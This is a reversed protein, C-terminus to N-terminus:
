AAARGNAQPDIDCLTFADLGHKLLDYKGIAANVVDDDRGPDKDWGIFLAIDGIIFPRQGIRDIDCTGVQNRIFGFLDPLGLSQFGAQHDCGAGIPRNGLLARNGVIGAFGRGIVQHTFQRNFEGWQHTDVPQRRCCNHFAATHERALAHDTRQSFVINHEIFAFRM